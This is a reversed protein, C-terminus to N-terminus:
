GIAQLYQAIFNELRTDTSYAVNLRLHRSAQQGPRFLAGPALMIGQRVGREALAIGDLGDPLGAWVFMGERGGSFVELGQRECMALVQDRSEAIRESLRALRRRQHGQTLAALVLREALESSTLGSLMKHHTLADAVGQEAALFGVRLSPALTKSFSGVYIVRNLGELAALTPVTADSLDACVDDEVIWFDYKEALQLVRYATAASYSAGTPNHLRPNTFFLKPRHQELLAELAITDPGQATWPVGVLELGRLPLGTLLNCYGPDDVLVIDGPQTLCAAALTLAQSAGQTLVLNGSNTPLGEEALERALYQRLAPLGRSEGYGVLEPGVRATQRLAQSLAEADYWDPPLWGSGPKLVQAPPEYLSDLLWFADVPLAQLGAHADRRGSDDPRAVFFGDGPRAQTVGEAVLRDYAEAVTFTSVNYQRAFARISWLRDGPRLLRATVADRLATMVQNVLTGAAPDLRLEPLTRQRTMKEQVTLHM